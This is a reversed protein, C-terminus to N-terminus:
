YELDIDAPITGSHSMLWEGYNDQLALTALGLKILETDSKIGTNKKAASILTEPMRGRMVHTKGELLGREEAMTRMAFMKRRSMGVPSPRKKAKKATIPM